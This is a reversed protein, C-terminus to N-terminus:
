IFFSLVFLLLSWKHTESSSEDFTDIKTKDKATTTPFATYAITARFTFTPVPIKTIASPYLTATNSAASSDTECIKKQLYLQNIITEEKPCYDSFCAISQNTKECVCKNTDQENKSSCLKELDDSINKLCSNLKETGGGTTCKIDKVNSQISDKQANTALALFITRLLM